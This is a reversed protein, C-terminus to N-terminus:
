ACQRITSFFRSHVVKIQLLRRDPSPFLVREKRKGKAGGEGKECFFFAQDCTLKAATRQTM